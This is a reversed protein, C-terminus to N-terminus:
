SESRLIRKVRNPVLRLSWCKSRMPSKRQVSEAQASTEGAKLEDTKEEPHNSEKQTQSEEETAGDAKGEEEPPILEEGNEGNMEKPSTRGVATEETDQADSRAAASSELEEVGIVDEGGILQRGPPNGADAESEEAAKSKKIRIEDRSCEVAKAAHASDDLEKKQKQFEEENKRERRKRGSKRRRFHPTKNSWEEIEEISPHDRQVIWRSHCEDTSKPKKWRQPVAWPKLCVGRRMRGYDSKKFHFNCVRANIQKGVDLSTEAPTIGLRELWKKLLKEDKPFTHLSVERRNIEM